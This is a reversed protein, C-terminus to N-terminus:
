TGSVIKSITSEWLVDLEKEVEEFAHFGERGPHDWAGTGKQSDSVTRFTLVDKMIKSKGTKMKVERQYIAIGSLLPRFTKEHQPAGRRNMAEELRRTADNKVRGLVPKGDAATITKDLGHEKLQQKVFSAIKNQALSMQSSPRSHEFPVAAYRGNKGKKVWSQGANKGKKVMSKSGLLYDIMNHKPQGDEIWQAPKYLVVSWIENEASSEIKLLDLNEMYKQRTSKLKMGKSNGKETKDGIMAHAQGALTQIEKKAKNKVEETFSNIDKNLSRLAEEMSYVKAM